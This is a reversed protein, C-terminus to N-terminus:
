SFSPVFYSLLLLTLVLACGRRPRPRGHRRRAQAPLRLPRGPPELDQLLHRLGQASQVRVQEPDPGVHLAPVALAAAADAKALFFILSSIFFFRENDEFEDKSM